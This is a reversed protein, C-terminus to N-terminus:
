VLCEGTLYNYKNNKKPGKRPAANLKKIDLRLRKRQVNLKPRNLIKSIENDSYFESLRKLKEIDKLSWKKYNNKMNKSKIHVFGM